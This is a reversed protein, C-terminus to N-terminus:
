GGISAAWGVVRDYLARRQETRSFVHDADRMLDVEIRDLRVAGALMEHVQRPSNFRHYVGGTYIFLLRAGRATMAGVDRAFQPRDPTERAFVTANDSARATRREGRLLRQGFRVWRGAQLPRRTLHRIRYGPTPYSYGDIFVAGVVREDRAAAAHTSDVGSCLGVLLFEGVGCERQLWDMADALDAAAREATTVVDTRLLSDGMGSLDFRLVHLGSAALRRALEVYLRFPGVRHHMGINSMIVARRVGAAPVQPETLVGILGNRPGFAVARETM